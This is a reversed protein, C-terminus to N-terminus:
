GDSVERTFTITVQPNYAHGAFNRREEVEVSELRADAPFKGFAAALTVPDNGYVTTSLVERKRITVREGM